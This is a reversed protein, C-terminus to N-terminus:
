VTSCVQVIVSVIAFCSVIGSFNQDEYFLGTLFELIELLRLFSELLEEVSTLFHAVRSKSVFSCRSFQWTISEYYQAIGEEM